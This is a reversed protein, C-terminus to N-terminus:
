TQHEQYESQTISYRVVDVVTGDQYVLYNRLRGERRGGHVEVYKQIARESADNDPHHNITVLDLDLRDFTLEM